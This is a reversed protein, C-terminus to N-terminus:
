EPIVETPQEAAVTETCDTSDSWLRGISMDEVIEMALSEDAADIDISGRVVAEFPVRYTKM